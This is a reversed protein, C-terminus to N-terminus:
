VVAVAYQAGLHDPEFVCVLDLLSQFRNELNITIEQDLLFSTKTVGSTVAQRATWESDALCEVTTM